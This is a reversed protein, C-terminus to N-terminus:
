LFTDPQAILIRNGSDDNNDDAALLQLTLLVTTICVYLFTMTHSKFDQWSDHKPHIEYWDTPGLKVFKNNDHPKDLHRSKSLM